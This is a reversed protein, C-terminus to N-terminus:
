SACILDAVPKGSRTEPCRFSLLNSLRKPSAEPEPPDETLLDRLRAMGQRIRTKVTGLPLGLKDALETHSWGEFYALELLLRQDHDLTALAQRVMERTERITADEAPTRGSSPLEGLSESIETELQRKQVGKSRLKDIGRCRALMALWATASGRESDFGSASRWAQLYVDMTVEEADARDGVIRLALGFVFRSSVDYFEALAQKDGAAIREVIANWRLDTPRGRRSGTHRDNDSEITIPGSQITM